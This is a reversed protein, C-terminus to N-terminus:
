YNKLQELHEQAQKYDPNLQLTKQFENKALLFNRTLMYLVGLRYHAQSDDPQMQIIQLHVSIAQQYKKQQYYIVGLHYYAEMFDPCLSIAKQYYSAEKDSSDSLAQGRTFWERAAVCDRVAYESLSGVPEFVLQNRTSDVTMKFRNLFNLGLLGAINSSNHFNHIAAAINHTTLNGVTIAQLNVLPAQVRGNATQLTIPPIEPNPTLNLAEAVESAIITYSAGTDVAFPKEIQNNITVRIIIMSNQKDYNVVAQSVTKSDSIPTKIASYPHWRGNQKVELNKVSTTPPRSSYHMQGKGNKWRYVVASSSSVNYFFVSTIALVVWFIRMIM